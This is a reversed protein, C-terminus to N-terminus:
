REKIEPAYKAESGSFVKGMQIRAAIEYYIALANDLDGRKQNITEKTATLVSDYNGGMYLRHLTSTDEKYIRIPQVHSAKGFVPKVPRQALHCNDVGAKDLIEYTVSISGSGGSSITRQTSSEYVCAGNGSPSVGLLVGSVSLGDLQFNIVNIEALTFTSEGTRKMLINNADKTFPETIVTAEPPLILRFKGDAAQYSFSYQKNAGIIGSLPTYRGTPETCGATSRERVLHLTNFSGSAGFMLDNVTGLDDSILKLGVEEPLTRTNEMELGPIGQVKRRLCQGKGDNNVHARVAMKDGVRYKVADCSVWSKSQEEWCDVFPEELYTEGWGFEKSIEPCTYRGTTIDANCVLKHSPSVDKIPFYYVGLNGERNEPDFCKDENGKESQDLYLKVVVHDYRYASDQVLLPSELPFDFLQGSEINTGPKLLRERGADVNQKGLCDCGQGMCSPDVGEKNLDEDGICRLSISWRGIKCGAMVAGGIEYNFVATQKVPNYTSLERIAPAIIVSSKSPFAYAADMLFEKSFIPIEYGFAALCISQAVGQGGSDFYQNLRANGYDNKLDKVSTDLAQNMSSYGGSIIAGFDGFVGSSNTSGFDDPTCGSQFLALAKYVLGCVHQTFLTKCMGADHLGTYKAQTICGKLGQLIAKLMQLNKYIGSLCLTQFTGIIQSHPDVKAETEAGPHIYDLLYNAGFAGSLDRGSYYRISPYNTGKTKGSEQYVRDQQYFWEEGEIATRAGLTKLPIKSKDRPQCICQVFNRDDDIFCDKTYGAREQGPDLTIKGEAIEKKCGDNEPIPNYGKANCLQKCSQDVGATFSQGKGDPSYVLLPTPSPQFNGFEPAIPMLHYIGKLNYTNEDGPLNRQIYYVGNRKWCRGDWADGGTREKVLIPEHSAFENTKLKERCNEVPELTLGRATSACEKQKMIKQEIEETTKSETWKAPVARCFARDCTWRYLQDFFAETKWLSTTKPCRADLSAKKWDTSGKTGVIANKAKDSLETKGETIGAKNAFADPGKESWFELTSELYLDRQDNYLPCDEDNSQGKQLIAKAIKKGTGFYGELYSAFMRIWRMATKMTSAGMCSIGAILYAKKVYESVVDIKDITWNLADVGENALFDPVLDSSDIPIDVFYGLDYCATETQSPAWQDKGQREQYNITVKLPFVVQSKKFQEWYSSEGKSWDQAANLKWTVYVKSNDGSKIASNRVPLIKCALSFKDDGKRMDQTCAPEFSVGSIRFGKESPNQPDALANGLYKFEFAAQIEQRGEDLLRPILRLPGQFQNISEVSFTLGSYCTRVTVVHQWYSSKGTPSEAIIYIQYTSYQQQAVEQIPFTAIDLLNSPVERPGLDKLSFDTLLRAFNVESFTFNGGGDATTVARADRKFDPHFNSGVVKYVYLYLKAGPKTEGNINSSVGLPREFYEYGKEIEAKVTIPKTDAFVELSTSTEWGAADKLTILIINKGESLSVSAKLLTGEGKKASRNNVFIEYTANESITGKLEISSKDTLASVNELQLRPKNIDSFVMGSWGAKNGATDSAILTLNNSKDGELTVHSFEFKGPPKDKKEPSSSTTSIAGGVVNSVNSSSNLTAVSANSVNSSSINNVVTSNSSNSESYLSSTVSSSTNTAANSSTDNLAPLTASEVLAPIVATDESLNEEVKKAVANGFSKGNVLLQIKAGIESFGIVDISSGAIMMPIEVELPPPTIDPPLTTFSYFNGSNNDAANGSAISYFYLTNQLLKELSLHHENVSNGDGVVKLKTQNVGYNVFSDAAETTTWKIVAGTDTIDEARVNSIELAHILPLNLFFLIVFLASFQWVRKKWPENSKESKKNVM